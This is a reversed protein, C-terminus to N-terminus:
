LARKRMFGTIYLCTIFAVTTVFIGMVLGIFAMFTDDGPFQPELTVIWYLFVITLILYFSSGLFSSILRKKKSGNWANHIILWAYISVIVAGAMIILHVFPITLMSIGYLIVLTLGFFIANVLFLFMGSLWPNQFWTLTSLRVVLSNNSGILHKYKNRSLFLLVIFIFGILLVLTM